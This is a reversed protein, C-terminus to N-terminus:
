NEAEGDPAENPEALTRAIFSLSESNLQDGFQEVIAEIGLERGVDEVWKKLTKQFQHSFNLDGFVFQSITDISAGFTQVRPSDIKIEREELTLISVRDRPAERVVYASHTAIIAISGTSQLLNDLVEMLDSIFNPHLHTEPEDLLLLSGQEIAAVAQATFRMMAYEGSSLKRANWDEDLVVVSREWDVQQILRISNAENGRRKYPFYSEGDIEIVHPLDDDPQRPRLPIHLREWLGLASLASELVDLRSKDRDIGFAGNDETKKCSVLAALLQDSETNAANVAFYEYDIGRWAGISPPFPDTPVSSFVLVRAPGFAPKFRPRPGVREGVDHLGDVISKLLQTKGVGNRGILISTRDRFIGRQAFPFRLSYNNEAPLLRATFVFDVAADDMPEAPEPRFYKAGRRLADYAGANRLAGFHFDESDVLELLDQNEGETRGVVADNLKRLASVGIQFGLTRIVAEYNELNPLLSVFPLGVEEIPFRNGHEAILGQLVAHTEPEGEFMLRMHMTSGDGDESRMYFTAFLRRGYDNWNDDDPIIAVLPGQADPLDAISRAVFAEVPEDAPIREPM